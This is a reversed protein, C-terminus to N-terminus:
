GVDELLVEAVSSAEGRLSKLVRANAVARQLAALAEAPRERAPVTNALLALVGQGPTLRRPRWRAGHRYASVAVLGVPLPRTGPGAGLSEAPHRTPGEGDVGRLSLPAPFPHVRGRADFVAFEDSYYTAGARVLAAVLSSKGSFSRGPIVIAKGRWAVVGAHVFVRRRAREAVYLRLDSEFAALAGDLHPTRAIRLTNAYTLHLRRLGPRSADPPTFISYLRGVVPGTASKWHPPLLTRLRPLLRPDSVRVGIRRGFSVFSLGAAWGLRDIKRM